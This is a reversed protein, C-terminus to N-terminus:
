IMSNSNKSSPKTTPKDVFRKPVYKIKSAATEVKKADQELEIFRNKLSKAQGKMPIIEEQNMMYYESQGNSPDSSSTLNKRILELSQTPPPTIQRSNRKSHSASTQEANQLLRERVAKANGLEISATDDTYSSPQSSVEEDTSTSFRREGDMPPTMQRPGRREMPPTNEQDMCKWMQMLTKAKGQQLLEAEKTAAGENTDRDPSIQKNKWQEVMQKTQGKEFYVEERKDSERVVQGNEDVRVKPDTLQYNLSAQVGSELNKFMAMREKAVGREVLENELEISRKVLTEDPNEFAIARSKTLGTEIDIDKPILISPTSKSMDAMYQEKITSALGATVDIQKEQSKFESSALSTLLERRAITLGQETEMDIPRNVTRQTQQEADIKSLLEERKAQALGSGVITAIEEPQIAITSRDSLQGSEFKAKKDKAAGALLDHEVVISAKRSFSEIQQQEFAQKKASALGAIIDTEILEKNSYSETVNEFEGQEFAQKKSSALGQQVRVDLRKETRPKNSELLGKEFKDKVEAMEHYPIHEKTTRKKRSLRTSEDSDGNIEEGEGVDDDNSQGNAAVIDEFKQFTKKIKDSPVVREVRQLPPQQQHQEEGDENMQPSFMKTINRLRELTDESAQSTEEISFEDPHTDIM